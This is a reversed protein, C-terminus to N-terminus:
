TARRLSLTSLFKHKAARLARALRDSEALLAHISISIKARCAQKTQRREGCPSRPYFNKLVRAKPPSPPTARRLSLTSLFQTPNQKPALASLDSEALLAHISIPNHYYRGHRGNTARRLSLTSLFQVTAQVHGAFVHDSEALLAHISIVGHVHRLAVVVFDSEALLAHISIHKHTKYSRAVITARRLSLTSLFKCHKGILAVRKADSEALLAHISIQSQQQVPWRDFLREGCPSRPYFNCRTHSM